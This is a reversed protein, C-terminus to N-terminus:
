FRELKFKIEMKDKIYAMHKFFIKNPYLTADVLKKRYENNELFLSLMKLQIPTLIIKGGRSHNYLTTVCYECQKFTLNKPLLLIFRDWNSNYISNEFDDM